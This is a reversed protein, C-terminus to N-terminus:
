KAEAGEAMGHQYIRWADAFTCNLKETRVWHELVVRESAAECKTCDLYGLLDKSLSGTGDCHACIM